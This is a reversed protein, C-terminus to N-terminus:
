KVTSSAGGCRTSCYTPRVVGFILSPLRHFSRSATVTNSQYSVFHLDSTWFRSTREDRNYIFSRRFLGRRPVAEILASPARVKTRLLTRYRPTKSRQQPSFNASRSQSPLRQPM